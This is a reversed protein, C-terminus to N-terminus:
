TGFYGHASLLTSIFWLLSTMQVITTFSSLFSDKILHNINLGNLNFSSFQINSQSLILLYISVDVLIRPHPFFILIICTLMDLYRCTYFSCPHLIPLPSSSHLIPFQSSLPHNPLSSSLLSPLYILLLSSYLIIYYSIIIYYLIVGLTLVLEFALVFALGSGSVKGFM